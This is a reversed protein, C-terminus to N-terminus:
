HNLPNQKGGRLPLVVLFFRRKHADEWAVSSFFDFWASVYVRAFTKFSLSLPWYICTKADKFLCVQIWFSARRSGIEKDKVKILVQKTINGNITFQQSHIKILTYMHRTHLSVIRVVEGLPPYCIKLTKSKSGYPKPSPDMLNQVFPFLLKRDWNRFFLETVGLSIYNQLSQYFFFIVNILYILPFVRYLIM